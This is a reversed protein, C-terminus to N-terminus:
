EYKRMIEAQLSKGTRYRPLALLREVVQRRKADDRRARDVATIGDLAELFMSEAEDFRNVQALRDGGIVLADIFYPHTPASERGIEFAEHILTLAREFNGHSREFEAIDGLLLALLLHRPPVNARVFTLVEKLKERAKAVDAAARTRDATKRASDADLYSMLGGILPDGASLLKGMEAQFVNRDNQDLVVLLRALRALRTDPANAGLKDGRVKAVEDFLTASSQFQKREGLLWGLHFKVKTVELLDVDPRSELIEIAKRYSAEADSHNGSFHELLGLHFYSQALPLDGASFTGLRLKLSRELLPRAKKMEGVARFANGIADLLTARVSASVGQSTGNEDLLAKAGNDIIRLTERASLRENATRFGRNELGLPDTTQFLAGVFGTLQEANKTQEDARAKQVLRQVRQAEERRSANLLMWAGSSVLVAAVVVAAISSVVLTHHRDVWRRVRDRWPEREAQVPEDALWRTIEDALARASPYRDEPRARLSKLCVAELARPLRADRSRPPIVEADRVARLPDMGSLRVSDFASKGTLIAYLVLGLNFIDSAPGVSEGKAQEPSMYQPTGVVAGTATLAGPSPSPSPADGDGENVPANAGFRKALGWDMVLTEGYRGLIINSPKLDRHMVGQDHAYAITNCVAIFQQLLGRFKLGNWDSEHHVAEDGHFADIAEQLTQGEVLPMTYFPGDDDQGLGYIPVIGPHQLRATIAAERLFRRWADAHLRDPRIRKLAVLRDLEEQRAALVEGQGGAAHRREPRYVAKSCLMEPLKGVVESYFERGERTAFIDTAQAGSDLDSQSLAEIRRRVEGVLDPCERCLEEVTLSAGQHRLAEWRNLLVNIRTDTDM